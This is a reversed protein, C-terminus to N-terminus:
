HVLECAVMHECAELIFELRCLLPLKLERVIEHRCGSCLISLFCHELVLLQSWHKFVIHAGNEHSLLLDLCDILVDLGLDLLVGGCSARQSVYLNSLLLCVDVEHLSGILLLPFSLGNALLVDSLLELSVLLVSLRDNM